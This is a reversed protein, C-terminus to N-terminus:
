YKKNKIKEQIIAQKQMDIKSKEKAQKLKKIQDLLELAIKELIKM